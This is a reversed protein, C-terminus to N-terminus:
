LGAKASVSAFGRRGDDQSESASRDRDVGFPAVGSRGKVQSVRDKAINHDSKVTDNLSSYECPYLRSWVCGRDHM